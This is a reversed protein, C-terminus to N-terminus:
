SVYFDMEEASLIPSPGVKDLNEFLVGRAMTFIPEGSPGRGGYLGNLFQRLRAEGALERVVDPGALQLQYTFNPLRGVLAPLDEYVPSPPTYPTCVSFVARVLGPQWLAMRWVFAGGWDHGGLFIQEGPAV